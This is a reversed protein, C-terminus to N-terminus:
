QIGTFSSSFLLIFNSFWSISIQEFTRSVRRFRLCIKRKWKKDFIGKWSDNLCNKRGNKQDLAFAHFFSSFINFTFVIHHSEEPTDYNVSVCHIPLTLHNVVTRLTFFSTAYFITNIFWFIYIGLYCILMSKVLLDRIFSNCKDLGSKHHFSNLSKVGM